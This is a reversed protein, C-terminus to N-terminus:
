SGVKIKQGIRLTGSAPLNNNAAIKKVTTNFKRAIGWLSDGSKVTYVDNAGSVPVRANVNVPQPKVRQESPYTKLALMFPEYREAPVALQYPGKPATTKRVLGTNLTLLSQLPADAIKAAAALDLPGGVDAVVFYPSNKIVPLSARYHEPRLILEKLALIKPIYQQTYKPLKLAAFHIPAGRKKNHAIAKAVPLEGCNYAAMTLLWDGEFKKNLKLLYKIAADTSANVDQTANYWENRSLGFVRATGPMFQWMGAAGYSSHAMPNLNSEVMPIIAVEYPIKHQDLKEMIFHLYYEGRWTVAALHKPYKKYVALAADLKVGTANTIAFGKRMRVWLDSPESKEVINHAPKTVETSSVTASAKVAPKSVTGAAVLPEPSKVATSACGANFFVSVLLLGLVFRSMPM